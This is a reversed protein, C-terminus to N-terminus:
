APPLLAAADDDRRRHVLRDDDLDLGHLCVRAVLLDDAARLAKVGM